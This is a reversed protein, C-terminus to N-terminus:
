GGFHLLEWPPPCSETKGDDLTSQSVRLSNPCPTKRGLLFIEAMHGLEGRRNWGVGCQNDCCRLTSVTSQNRMQSNIWCVIKCVWFKVAIWLVRLHFSFCVLWKGWFRCSKWWPNRWFTRVLIRAKPRVFLCKWPLRRIRKVGPLAHERIPLRHYNYRKRTKGKVNDYTM